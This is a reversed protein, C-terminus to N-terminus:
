GSASASHMRRDSPAAGSAQLHPVRELTNAFDDRATVRGSEPSIGHVTTRGVLEVKFLLQIRIKCGKWFPLSDRDNGCGKFRVPLSCTTSSRHGCIQPVVLYRVGYFIKGGGEWFPM